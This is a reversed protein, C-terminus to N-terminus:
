VRVARLLMGRVALVVRKVSGLEVFSFLWSFSCFVLLGTKNLLGEVEAWRGMISGKAFRGTQALTGGQEPTRVGEARNKAGKTARLGPKSGGLPGRSVKKAEFVM